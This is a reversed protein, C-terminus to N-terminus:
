IAHGQVFGGDCACSRFLKPAMVLPWTKMAV